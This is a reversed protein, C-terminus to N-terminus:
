EDRGGPTRPAPLLKAFGREQAIQFATQNREYSYLYPMFVEEPSAMGIQIIALQAEVWDKLIRWGIRCAQDKTAFRPQLKGQRRQKELIEFVKEARLPLKFPMEVAGIKLMFAVGSVQGSEYEKMIKTAGGEALKQEIEAVTKQTDVSTTYNLIARSM